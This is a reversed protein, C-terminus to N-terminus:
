TQNGEFTTGGSSDSRQGDISPEPPVRGLWEYVKIRWNADAQVRTRVTKRVFLDRLLWGAEKQVQPIELTYLRESKYPYSKIFRGEVDNFYRTSILAYGTGPFSAYDFSHVVKILSDGVLPTDLFKGDFTVPVDGILDWSM